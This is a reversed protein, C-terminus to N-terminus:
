YSKPFHGEIHSCREQEAVEPAQVTWREWRRRDRLEAGEKVSLVAIKIRMSHGQFLGHGVRM